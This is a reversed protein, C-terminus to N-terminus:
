QVNGKMMGTPQLRLTLSRLAHLHQQIVDKTKEDILTGSANFKSNVQSIYVEPKNVPFMNLAQFIPRISQQMRTTGWMGNTAGMLGVPKNLLPSDIGRSAWDIANKFVGPFSYNYEPVAFLLADAHSLIERFKKVSEPRNEGDHDANYFPLHGIEAIELTTHEPLLLQAATLLATNFSGKRLSGSIGVIHINEFM